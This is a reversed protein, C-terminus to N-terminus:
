KSKEKELRLRRKRQIWFALLFEGLFYGISNFWLDWVTNVFRENWVAQVGMFNVNCAIFELLEWLAGFMFFMGMQDPVLFGLGLFTFTHIFSWLDISVYETAILGHDLPDYGAVFNM